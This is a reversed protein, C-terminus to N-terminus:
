FDSLANLDDLFLVLTGAGEGFAGDSTDEGRTGVMGAADFDHEVVAGNTADLVDEGVVKFFRLM